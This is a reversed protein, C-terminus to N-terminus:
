SPREGLGDIRDRAEQHWKLAPGHHVATKVALVFLFPEREYVIFGFPLSQQTQKIKGDSGRLTGHDRM